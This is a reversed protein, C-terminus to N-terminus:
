ETAIFTAIDVFCVRFDLEINSINNWQPKETHASSDFNRLILCLSTVKFFPHFIVINSRMM